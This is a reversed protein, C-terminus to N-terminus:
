ATFVDVCNLLICCMHINLSNDTMMSVYTCRYTSYTLSTGIYLLVGQQKYPFQQDLSVRTCRTCSRVDVITVTYSICCDDEYGVLSPAGTIISDYSMVHVILSEGEESPFM